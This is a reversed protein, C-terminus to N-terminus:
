SGEGKIDKEWFMWFAENRRSLRGPIFTRPGCAPVSRPATSQKPAESAVLATAATRGEAVEEGREAAWEGGM